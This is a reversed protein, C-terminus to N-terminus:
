KAKMQQAESLREWQAAIQLWAAKETPDEINEARERCEQARRRYEEAKGMLVVKQVSTGWCRWEKQARPIELNVPM